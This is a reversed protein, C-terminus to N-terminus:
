HPENSAPSDGGKKLWDGFKMDCIGDLYVCYRRQSRTLPKTVPKHLLVVARGADTVQFYHDGQFANIKGYDHLWGLAAMEQCAAWDTTGPGTVFRNRREDLSRAHPYRDTGADDYGIAHRLISLHTRPLSFQDYTPPM